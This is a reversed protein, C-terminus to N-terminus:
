EGEKSYYKTEGVKKGNEYITISYTNGNGYYRKLCGNRKGHLWECEYFISGDEFYSIEKGNYEGFMIDIELEKAGSKYYATYKGSPDGNDWLEISAIHGDRYYNIAKGHIIGNIFPVTRKKKGLLFNKYGIGTFPISDGKKFYQCNRSTNIKRFKVAEQSHVVVSILLLLALSYLKSM